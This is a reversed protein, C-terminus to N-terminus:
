YHVSIDALDNKGDDEWRKTDEELSSTPAIDQDVDQQCTQTINGADNVSQINLISHSCLNPSVSSDPVDDELVLHIRNGRREFSRCKM